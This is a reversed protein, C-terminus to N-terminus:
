SPRKKLKVIYLTWWLCAPIAEMERDWVEYAFGCNDNPGYLKENKIFLSGTYTVFVVGLSNEQFFEESIKEFFAARFYMNRFEGFTEWSPIVYSIRGINLQRIGENTPAFENEACGGGLKAIIESKEIICGAGFSVRKEEDKWEKGTVTVPLLLMLFVLLISGKM